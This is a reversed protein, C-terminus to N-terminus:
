NSVYIHRGQIEFHVQGTSELASLVKSVNDFRSVSGEFSDPPINGRYHVSVDYWRSVKRMISQISENDFVFKDNKWAVALQPDVAVLRLNGATNIAEIGPTLVKDLGSARVRVRGELLTTKVTHDEQYSNINFHTGLVEVQQGQSEVIFPHKKDKAVEFYAEGILSVKRKGDKILNTTFSISSAANLWIKSGDSLILQYTEGNATTLIHSGGLTSNEDVQYILEGQQSKSIRIGTTEFLLENKSNNLPIVRGNELTLTAGIRGPSVDNAYRIEGANERGLYFFIGTAFLLILIAAATTIRQALKLVPKGNIKSNIAIYSEKQARVINESSIDPLEPTWQLYWNEIWALEEPSCQKNGYKILLDELNFNKM